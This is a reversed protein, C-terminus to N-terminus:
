VAVLIALAIARTLADVAAFVALARTLRPAVPLKEAPATLMVSEIIVLVDLIVGNAVAPTTCLLVDPTSELENIVLASIMAAAPITSEFSAVILVAPLTAFVAVVAVPRLVALAITARSAEPLKEAFITIASKSPAAESFRSLTPSVMVPVNCSGAPVVARGDKRNVPLVVVPSEALLLLRERLVLPNSRTLIDEPPITDILVNVEAPTTFFSADPLRELESITSELIAAPAPIMSVLSAVILVVPLTALEAVVAVSALVALAITRRSVNPLKEAFTIVITSTAALPLRINLVSGLM